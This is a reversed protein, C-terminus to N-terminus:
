GGNLMRNRRQIAEETRPMFMELGVEIAGNQIAEVTPRFSKDYEQFAMRYDHPHKQLADALAAAGLIAMSGGMGAAPSPCYAADGVLAVRGKTWSPMRIQCLKDFYFNECRDMEELLEGIRWGEGQFHRRIMDKQRDQSRRDYAIEQEAFFCFAIDTKGNYANLMVTKGPVNFMQATDEEILLKDVITLSFYNQMFLLFGAEEGFCLRRVASHTGDCGIVLSFSRRMGSAFTVAVAEASEELDSISDAFLFEVDDKVQDFLVDLLVDREIEYEDNVAQADEAQALMRALPVGGADLFDMPRPPLSHAAIKELLGMRRVVDVVGERIDVPTGGKRLAQAVEVVTVTYGRRTMWYATALGAFSAGSILVSPTQGVAPTNNTNGQNVTDV